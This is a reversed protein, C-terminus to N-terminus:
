LNQNILENAKKFAAKHAEPRSNYYDKVITYDGNNWFGGNWQDTICKKVLDYELDTEITIGLSDYYKLRVGLQMEPPYTYFFRVDEDNVVEQKWAINEQIYKTLWKEFQEKNKGTEM